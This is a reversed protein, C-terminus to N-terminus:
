RGFGGELENTKRRHCEACLSQHNAQDWFLDPRAKANVIHDTVMAITPLIHTGLPYGVCLPHEALRTRSYHLWANTYGRQQRTGRDREKAQRHAQCRGQQVLASCSPEACYRLPTAPV